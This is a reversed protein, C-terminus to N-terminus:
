QSWPKAVEFKIVCIILETDWRKAPM